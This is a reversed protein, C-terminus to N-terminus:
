FTYVLLKDSPIVKESLVWITNGKSDILISTALLTNTELTCKTFVDFSNKKCEQCVGERLGCSSRVGYYKCNM